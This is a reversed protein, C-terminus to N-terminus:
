LMIILFMLSGLVSGQSVGIFLHQNFGWQINFLGWRRACFRWKKKSIQNHNAGYTICTTNKSINRVWIFLGSMQEKRHNFKRFKEKIYFASKGHEMHYKDKGILLDWTCRYSNVCNAAGYPSPCKSM